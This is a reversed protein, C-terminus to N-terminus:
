LRSQAARTQEEPEGPTPEPEAGPATSSSDDRAPAAAPESPTPPESTRAPEAPPPNALAPEGLWPLRAPLAELTPRAQQAVLVVGFAMIAAFVAGGVAKRRARRRTPEELANAIVQAMEGASGFRRSPHRALARMVLRNVSRPIARNPARERVSEPSGKLKADLIQVASDAVFPMRGTLMEYLVCGLAYLDARRDVRRGAVQEPAMYEPTGFLTMAGVQSAGEERVERASEGLEDASKALSFDILKDEERDTLFLNEPKIDRHVLNRSHAVHLALCVQRIIRLARKWEFPEEHDLASRLTRGELLDMVCFLRGDDAQGFDHVRVLGPHHLRSLSRAERRFRVAFDRSHTHEADLLKVAVRRGLDIHEAEHVVGSAGRGLERSLRYRTGPLVDSDPEEVEPEEEIPPEWPAPAERRAATVLRQFERRSRGPQAPYLSYMLQAVRARVGREGNPLPVADKLLAALTATAQRADVYREERDPATMKAIVDDLEPPAGVLAAIPPLTLEGSAVAATHEQADGQLFRRNSCLEWLMVGAAYMDVRHDGSDGNAVEPAVYGPKAFVVGAVTHCRRNQGRATGFDIIKLEGSYGIMVNHPSLDRHVICLPQGAADCREHVHSLAETTLAGVAVAEEWRLRLGVEAARRRVSGLSRGEVYEMIVYPDGTPEHTAAEVIQAVGSHHLQAQVRAEDLFRALFNPDKAYDRRIVKIVVPREAGEVGTTSGLFVQGMGGRAILRLMLFRGFRRPLGERAFCDTTGEVREAPADPSEPDHLPPM